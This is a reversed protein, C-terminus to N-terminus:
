IMSSALQSMQIALDKLDNMKKIDLANTIYQDGLKIFENKISQKANGPKVIFLKHHDQNDNSIYKFNSILYQDLQNIADMCLHPPVAIFWEVRTYDIDRVLVKLNYSYGIKYISATDFTSAPFSIDSINMTERRDKVKGMCALYVGSLKTLCKDYASLSTLSEMLSMRDSLSGFKHVFVLNILWNRLHTHHDDNTHVLSFIVKILGGFTLFLQRSTNPKSVDTCAGDPYVYLERWHIDKTYGSRDNSVLSLLSQIGLYKGIDNVLFLIDAESWAGRIDISAPKSNMDYIIEDGTLKLKGYQNNHDTDHMSSLLPELYRSSVMSEISILVKSHRTHHHWKLHKDAVNDDRDVIIHELKNDLIFESLTLKSKGKTNQFLKIFPDHDIYLKGGVKKTAFHCRLYETVTM